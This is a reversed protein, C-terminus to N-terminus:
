RAKQTLLSVAEDFAGEKNLAECYLFDLFRVMVKALKYVNM